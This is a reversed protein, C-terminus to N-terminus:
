SGNSPATAPSGLTAALLGRKANFVLSEHPTLMPLSTLNATKRLNRPDSIDIVKVGQGDGVADYILDKILLLTSDYFLCQHGAPDVYRFTKFGGSHGQHDVLRANCTYGQKVRGSDYDRRPARGQIDTEPKSGPGCRARPVPALSPETHGSSGQPILLLPASILACALLLRVVPRSSM